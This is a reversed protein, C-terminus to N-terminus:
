VTQLHEQTLIESKAYSATAAFKIKQRDDNVLVYRILDAFSVDWYDLTFNKEAFQRGVINFYAYQHTFAIRM